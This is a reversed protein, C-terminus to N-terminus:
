RKRGVRRRTRDGMTGSSRGRAAAPARPAAMHVREVASSSGLAGGDVRRSSWATSVRPAGRRPASPGDRGCGPRAHGVRRGAAPERALAQVARLEGPEEVVDAGIPEVPEPPQSPGGAHPAALQEPQRPPARGRRRPSETSCCSTGVGPPGLKPGGFDARDRRVIASSGSVRSASSACRSAWSSSRSKASRRRGPGLDRRRRRSPPGILGVRESLPERFVAPPRSGPRCAECRQPVGGRRQREGGADRDVDHGCPETVVRLRHERGVGVQQRLGVLDRGLAHRRHQIASSGM